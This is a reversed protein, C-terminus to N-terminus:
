PLLRDVSLMVSFLTLVLLSFGFVKRAWKEDDRATLGQLGIRLWAVGLVAMVVFYSYGTYGFVTLALAAIIFAGMYFLIYRKTVLAGRKVPMVPLQAATYDRLRFMAIAYFHPMQWFFLILFLILAGLDFNNTVATYGATVSTAGSISGVLTGQVSRRKSLGYLVLYDVYGVVGIAVTLLNTHFILILFGLLGLTIAYVIANVPSITGEVLSRHRTRAMKKDINRDIYNNFVCGSAIILAIGGLTALLLWGDINGMSALLFGGAATMVNGRIIGPKTLRYYKRLTASISM